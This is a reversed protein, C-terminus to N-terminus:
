EEVAPPSAQGVDNAGWCRAHGNVDVACSHDWGTDVAVFTGSPPSSEGSADDGWCHMEGRVDIACSQAYGAAVDVFSGDPPSARDDDDMGWCVLAGDDRVACAHYYGVDLASFVGSPANSEGNWNSGGCVIRGDTMRGCWFDNGVSVEVFPGPHTDNRNGWCTIGGDLEVGCHLDGEVSLDLWPGEPVGVDRGWCTASGDAGLGCATEGGAVVADFERAPASTRGDEDDSGWCVITDDVRLGCSHWSGTAIDTFAPGPPLAEATGHDPADGRWSLEWGESYEWDDVPDRRRTVSLTGDTVDGTVDGVGLLEWSSNTAWVESTDFDVGIWAGSPYTASSCEELYPKDLVAVEFVLDCGACAVIEGGRARRVEFDESCDGPAHETYTYTGSARFCGPFALLSLLVLLFSRM